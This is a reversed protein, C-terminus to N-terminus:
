RLSNSRTIKKMKMFSLTEFIHTRFKTNISSFNVFNCVKISFYRVAIIVYFKLRKKRLLANKYDTVM